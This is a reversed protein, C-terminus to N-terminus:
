VTTDHYRWWPALDPWQERKLTWPKDGFYHYVSVQETPPLWTKAHWPIMNYSQSIHYWDQYVLTLAQEDFASYCGPFGFPQNVTANSLINLLRDFAEQSPTLLVSTAILVFARELGIRIASAPVRDADKLSRYPNFLGRTTYPDAWANSFTAAPTPRDFLHDLNQVAITDLDLFLIKEYETLTLCSWKTYSDSMWSDYMKQQKMTKMARTPYTLYPVEKIRAVYPLVLEKDVDPTVLCIFDHTTGTAKLSASLARLGPLYGNGKMLLSVYAFRSM